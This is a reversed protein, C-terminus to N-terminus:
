AILAPKALDKKSPNGDILKLVLLRQAHKVADSPPLAVTPPTSSPAFAAPQTTASQASASAPEEVEVDSVEELLNGEGSAVDKDVDVDDLKEATEIAKGGFEGARFLTGAMAKMADALHQEPRKCNFHKWANDWLTQKSMISIM